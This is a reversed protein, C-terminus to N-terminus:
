HTDGSNSTTLTGAPNGVIGAIGGAAFFFLFHVM